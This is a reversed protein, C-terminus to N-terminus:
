KPTDADAPQDQPPESSQGPRGALWQYGKWALLAAGGGLLGYRLVPRRAGSLALTLLSSVLPARKILGLALPLGKTLALGPVSNFFTVKQRAADISGVMEARETAARMLLLQKRLARQTTANADADNM